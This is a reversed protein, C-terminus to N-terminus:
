VFHAFVSDSLMRGRPTLWLRGTDGEDLLGQSRLAAIEAPFFARPPAGFEDAFRAADLGDATRLALFVAEGRAVRPTLTEVEACRTGAAVELYADLMRPNTRRTGHPAGASPPDNSVAGMGLGLVPRRDWYRRNHRAERGPRAYSSIEYRRYGAATLREEARELMRAATEEDAVTLRGREAARAFPTGPELTLEYVSVHDPAAALAATLERDFAALDQGPAAAILDLSIRAFGADRCAALTRESERARHARGLRRLTADDFSQVGVSVRDVGAARFAPLRERELTSPNVELTVEAPEGAFSERVASILERVGHPSLLSPTGGGLYITALQLDGLAARRVALEARLAAVYRDEAERGLARAAVVPFDCYPCIRMCFPVHLYVGLDGM